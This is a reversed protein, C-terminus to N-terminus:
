MRPGSQYGYHRDIHGLMSKYKLEKGCAGTLRRTSPTNVVTPLLLRCEIRTPNAENHNIKDLPRGLNAAVAPKLHVERIHEKVVERMSQNQNIDVGFPHGCREGNAELYECETIVRHKAPAPASTSLSAPLDYTAITSTFTVPTSTSPVPAYDELEITMNSQENSPAASLNTSSGQASPATSASMTASEDQPTNTTAQAPTTGQTSMDDRGLSVPAGVNDRAVYVLDSRPTHHDNSVQQPLPGYRSAVSHMATDVFATSPRGDNDVAQSIEDLTPRADLQMNGQLGEHEEMIADMFMSEAPDGSPALEPYFNGLDARWASLIDNDLIPQLDEKTWPSFISLTSADASARSFARPPVAHENDHAGCQSFAEFNVGAGNGNNVAVDAFSSTSSTPADLNQFAMAEVCSEEARSLITPHADIKPHTKSLVHADGQMARDKDPGFRAVTMYEGDDEDGEADAEDDHLGLAAMTVYEGDDEEGEADADEDQGEELTAVEVGADHTCEAVNQNFQDFAKTFAEPPSGFATLSTSSHVLSTQEGGSIWQQLAVWDAHPSSSNDESYIMVRSNGIYVSM